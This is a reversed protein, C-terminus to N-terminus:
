NELQRAGFRWETALLAAPRPGVLPRTGTGLNIPKPRFTPIAPNQTLLQKGMLGFSRPLIERCRRSKGRIRREARMSVNVHL